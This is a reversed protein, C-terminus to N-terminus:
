DDRPVRVTGAVNRYSVGGSSDEEVVFDGGLDAV